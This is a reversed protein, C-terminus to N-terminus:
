ANEIREIKVGLKDAMASCKSCPHIPLLNGRAGVRLIYIIKLNRPANRMVLEEAHYGGGTRYFRPKNHYIGLPNGTADFGVAAIKFRCHSKAAKTKM